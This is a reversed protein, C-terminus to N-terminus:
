NTTTTGACVMIRWVRDTIYWRHTLDLHPHSYIHLRVTKCSEQAKVDSALHHPKEKKSQGGYDIVLLLHTQSGLSTRYKVMICWWGRSGHLRYFYTYPGLSVIHHIILMIKQYQTHYIRGGYVMWAPAYDIDIHTLDLHHPKAEIYWWNHTLDWAPNTGTKKHPIPTTM